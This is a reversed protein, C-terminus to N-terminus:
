GERGAAVTGFVRDGLTSTIGLCRQEDRWHHRRHNAKLRRYRRTRPRYATHFLFHSWEYHALAAVAAAVATSIPGLAPRGALWLPLGVVVAAVVGNVAQFLGADVARLVVWNITAPHDHHERHGVGPDILLGRVRFPQIHLVYRHVSWEVFPALAAVVAVAVLDGLGLPAAGVGALVLRVVVALSFGVFLVRPSGFRVFVEAARRLSRISAAVEEGLEGLEGPDAPRRRGNRTVDVM